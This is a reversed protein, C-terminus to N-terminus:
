RLKQRLWIKEFDLICAIRPTPVKSTKDFKTAKESYILKISYNCLTVNQDTKTLPKPQYKKKSKPPHACIPESFIKQWKNKAYIQYAPNKKIHSLFSDFHYL